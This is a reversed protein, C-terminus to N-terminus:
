AEGGVAEPACLRWRREGCGAKPPDIAVILGRDELRELRRQVTRRNVELQRALESNSPWAVGDADALDALTMLLLRAVPDVGRLTRAWTFLGSM